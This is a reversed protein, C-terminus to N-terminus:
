PYVYPCCVQYTTFLYSKMPCPVYVLILINSTVNWFMENCYILGWNKKSEEHNYHVGEAMLQYMSNKKSKGTWRKVIGILNQRNLMVSVHVSRFTGGEIWISSISLNRWTSIRRHFPIVQYHVAGLYFCSHCHHQELGMHCRLTWCFHSARINDSLFSRHTISVRNIVKTHGLEM